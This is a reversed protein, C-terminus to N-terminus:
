IVIIVEHMQSLVDNKIEEWPMQGIQEATQGLKKVEYGM